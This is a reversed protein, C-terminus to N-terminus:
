WRLYHFGEIRKSLRTEDIHAMRVAFVLLLAMKRYGSRWRGRVGPQDAVLDAARGYSAGDISRITPQTM